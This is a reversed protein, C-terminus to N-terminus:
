LGELDPKSFNPRLPFETLNKPYGAPPPNHELFVTRPFFVIVHPHDCQVRSKARIRKQHALEKEGDRPNSRLVFLRCFRM